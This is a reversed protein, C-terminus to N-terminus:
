KVEQLQKDAWKPIKLKAKKMAAYTQLLAARAKQSAGHNKEREALNIKKRINNVRDTYERMNASDIREQTFPQSRGGVALREVGEGFSRGFASQLAGQRVNGVGLERFPRIQNLLHEDVTLDGQNADGSIVRGTYLERGAAVELPVRFLPNIGMGLYAVGDQLSSEGLLPSAIASGLRMGGEQPLYSGIMLVSRKDPDAGVQLALQERMWRPRAHEPVQQEGAFMQELADKVKPVMTHYKPNELLMKIGYAASNRTWAYFPLLRRFVEQETNTLDSFDFMGEIIKTTASSADYGNDRLAAYAIMRSWDEIRGNVGFWPKLLRNAYVEDVAMGKLYSLQKHYPVRSMIGGYTQAQQRQMVRDHMELLAGKPNRLLSQKNPMQMTGDDLLMHGAAENSTGARIAMGQETDRLADMGSIRGHRTDFIVNKLVDADHGNFAVKAAQWAYRSIQAPSIGMSLMQIVAGSINGITWSPHSLTVGKWVGTMTDLAKLVEGIDKETHFSKYINEVAEAVHEPVMASEFKSGNMGLIDHAKAVIEKDIKRYLKGGVELYAFNRGKAPILRGEIGNDTVFKTYSGESLVDALRADNIPLKTTEYMQDAMLRIKAKEHSAARQAMTIAPNEEFFGRPLDAGGSLTSYMGQNTLKNIEYISMREPHPQSLSDAKISDDYMQILAKRDEIAKAMVPNSGKLVELDAESFSNAADREGHTFWGVEAGDPGIVRQRYSTRAKQFSEVLEGMANQASASLKTDINHKYAAISQAAERTKYFSSHGAELKGLLGMRQEAEGMSKEADILGQAMGEIEAKLGPFLKDDFWGRKEIDLIKDWIADQAHYIKAEGNLIADRAVGVAGLFSDTDAVPIGYKRQIKSAQSFLKDMTIRMTDGGARQERHMMRVLEHPIGSKEGFGARRFRDMMYAYDRMGADFDDGFLNATARAIPMFANGGITGPDVGLAMEAARVLNMATGNTTQHLPAKIALSLRHGAELQKHLMDALEQRAGMTEPSTDLLVRKVEQLGAQEEAIAEATAQATLGAKDVPKLLDMPIDGYRQRLYNWNAHTVPDNQNAGDLIEAHAEAAKGSAIENAVREHERAQKELADAMQHHVKREQMAAAAESELPGSSAHPPAVEGFEHLMREANIEAASRQVLSGKDIPLENFAHLPRTKGDEDVIWKIGNADEGVRYKRGAVTLEAGDNLSETPNQIVRLPPLKTKSKAAGEIDAHMNALFSAEPDGTTKEIKRALEGLDRQANAERGGKIGKIMEEVDEGFHILTQEGAGKPVNATFYKADKPNEKIHDRVVKPLEGSFSGSFHDTGHAQVADESGELLMADQHTTGIDQSKDQLKRVIGARNYEKLDPTRTAPEKAVVRGSASDGAGAGVSGEGAQGAADGVQEPVSVDRGKTASNELGSREGKVVDQYPAAIEDGRQRMFAAEDRKDAATKRFTNAYEDTKAQRIAEANAIKDAAKREARVGVLGRIKMYDAQDIAGGAFLKNGNLDNKLKYLAADSAEALRGYALVDAPTALGEAVQGSHYALLDQMEGHLKTIRQVLDANGAQLAERLAPDTSTRIGGPMAPVHGAAVDAKDLNDLANYNDKLESLSQALHDYLASGKAVKSEDSLPGEISRLVPGLATAYKANESFAPVHIGYDTWPIHAITSGSAINGVEGPAAVEVGLKGTVRDPGIRIGPKADMGWKAHFDMAAQQQLKAAETDAVQFPDAKGLLGEQSETTEGLRSLYRNFRTQGHGGIERSVLAEIELETKGAAKLAAIDTHGLGGAEMFRAVIKDTIPRGAIAELRSANLVKEGAKLVSATRGAASVGKAGIAAPGLYTLPDMLVDGVFAGVGLAVRNEVGMKRLADGFHVQGMGFTGTEGADKAESAISPFVINAITNRPLDLLDLFRTVPGRTDLKTSQYINKIEPLDMSNLEGISLRKTARQNAINAPTADRTQQVLADTAVQRAYRNPDDGLQLPIEPM